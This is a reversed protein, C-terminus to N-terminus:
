FFGSQFFHSSRAAPRPCCAPHLLCELTEQAVELCQALMQERELVQTTRETPRGLSQITVALEVAVVGIAAFIPADLAPLPHPAAVPALAPAAPSGEGNEQRPHERAVRHARGPQPPQKLAQQIAARYLPRDLPQTQGQRQLANVM